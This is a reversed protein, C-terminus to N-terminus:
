GERETEIIQRLEVARRFMEPDAIGQLYERAQNFQGNRYYAYALSYRIDDEETAGMQNLRPEIAVAEEFRESALLLRFRQRTKRDVDLVLSNLYLAKRFEGARRYLEAAEFYLSFNGAAAEEVLRAATRPMEQELYAQALVLRVQESAPFRLRAEELVRIALEQQGGQRLAQGITLYSDPEPPASALFEVSRQAAEQSLGLELLYVVQQRAFDDRDPFLLEARELTQFAAEWQDQNWQSAARVSYLSPFDRLSSLRDVADIAEQYRETLFFAQALYANISPDTQGNEVAKQFDTISAEPNGTRLALLGRLTYYRARDIDPDDEDVNALADTARSLNGDRLMVAAIGVYDADPGTELADSSQEQNGGPWLPAAVLLASVGLLIPFIRQVFRVQVDM